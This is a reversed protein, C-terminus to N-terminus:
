SEEDCVNLLVVRKVPLRCICVSRTCVMVLISRFVSKRGEKAWKTVRIATLTMLTFVM